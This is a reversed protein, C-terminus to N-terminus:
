KSMEVARDYCAKTGASIAERFGMKELKEVGAITTGGKSCVRTKLVDPDEGTELVMMGAGVVTSAVMTRIDEMSLSDGALSRCEKILQDIFMYVFAPSSGSACIVTNIQEEPVKVYKGVSSFIQEIVSIEDKSFRSEDFAVGACGYGILAPTNPMARVVRIRGDFAGTLYDITKGPALSVFITGDKVDKKIEAFVDDFMQPKIALIVIDSAKVVDSNCMAAKIGLEDGASVRKEPTKCSFIMDKRDWNRLIGKALAFGMNGMGIFGIKM